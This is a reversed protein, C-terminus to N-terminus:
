PSGLLGEIMAVLARGRATLFVERESRNEPRERTFLLGQGAEFWHGDSLAQLYRSVMSKTAATQRILFRQTCGEHRAAILLVLASNLTMGPHLRQLERVLKIARSLGESM